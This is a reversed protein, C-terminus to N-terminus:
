QSNKFTVEFNKGARLKSATVLIHKPHKKNIWTVREAKESKVTKGNVDANRIRIPTFPDLGVGIKNISLSAGGLSATMGVMRKGRHSVSQHSTTDDLTVTSKHKGLTVAITAHDGAALRFDNYTTGDVEIISQYIPTKHECAVGVGAGSVRFTNTRRNVTSQVLVSPGVGSFNKKCTITPVVFDESAAKIHTKPKTVQYGAFGTSTVGARDPASRAVNAARAPGGANVAILAVIGVGAAGWCRRM